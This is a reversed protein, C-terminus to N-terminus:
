PLWVKTWLDLNDELGWNQRVYDRLADGRRSCEDLDAAHERIAKVWEQFRNKLRTVPYAGQYPTIDTCIVPYGLIGYELLKLHSKAENFAHIELPAIALDLNLSALKAPYEGIPVPEHYEVLPKLEEPCMGFFVWEVEDALAKVLDVAFALDGGHSTSGAWGVRPLRGRGREPKLHGWRAFEICNPAVRIDDCFGRYAAALPETSVVMRDVLSAIRRLRRITDPPFLSKNANRSSLNTILDDIEFVYFADTYKRNLETAQIHAEEIQYQLLVADPRIREMGVPTHHVFCELGEIRGADNLARLPSRVRCEGSGGKSDGIVALMRPIPRWPLPNKFLEAHIERDFAREVSLNRNYAPDNAIQPLWKKWLLNREEESMSSEADGGDHLVSSFPTWVTLYGQKEVSLCLDIDFFADLCKEKEALWDKLLNRKVLLCKKSVASYNQDVQLRGFYGPHNMSEGRYAPSSCPVIGASYIRGQPDLLRAGVIGVEPRMGHEMMLDLWVPQIIAAHSDLILLHDGKSNSLAQELLKDLSSSPPLVKLKPSDLTSLSGLYARIEPSTCGMDSLLIQYDPYSTKEVISELCFQLQPFPERVPIIISVLPKSNHLYRVKCTDPIPGNEIRAPIALRALHNELAHRAADQLPIKNEQSRHYLIEPVHGICAGGEAEYARFALDLAGADDFGNSEMFLDRGVLALGGIYPRSRLLDLNFDPKFHTEVFEGSSTVADEDSYVFRWEPHSHIAEAFFLFAHRPVLDGPHIVGVWDANAEKLRRNLASWPDGEPAVVHVDPFDTNSIITLEFDSYSQMELYSISTQAPTEEGSPVIMGLHIKPRSAWSGIRERYLREVIQPLGSVGARTVAAAPPLVLARRTAELYGRGFKLDPELHNGEAWENWANVFVFPSNSERAKSATHSLWKEYLDPTSNALMWANQKRRSTNDWGPSVCPILPYSPDPKEIQSQVFSGYDIVVHNGPQVITKPRNIWDHLYPQFEVAADFGYDRPDRRDPDAMSDMRCLYIEGIGSEQAHRRWIKATRAPNPLNSAAYIIILPKGDVRIYREDRFVTTLWKIHDLDDQDSYNQGILIDQEAGDWRRTWNENAWCLCFPFDPKKSALVEDLPRNLLRKGNFWYHYYCFGHIGYERALDAQAQRTEALRLDYFGLDAPLHPQYHGPFQPQAQVVNRWETFGKGWWADNEPIPHFQPLYIAILRPTTM